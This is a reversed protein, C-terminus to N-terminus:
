GTMRLSMGPRDGHAGGVLDSATRGASVGTVVTNTSVLLGSDTLTVTNIVPVTNTPQATVALVVFQGPAMLGVSFVVLNGSTAFTGQGNTASLFVENTSLANTVVVVGSEVAELNTVIITTTLPSNIVVPNPSNSVGVGFIQARAPLAAAFLGFALLAM